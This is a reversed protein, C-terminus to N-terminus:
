IAKNGILSIAKIEDDCSISVYQSGHVYYNQHDQSIIRFQTVEAPRDYYDLLCAHITLEEGLMINEIYYEECEINSDNSICKAPHDLKLANSSTAIIKDAPAQRFIENIGVTSALEIM